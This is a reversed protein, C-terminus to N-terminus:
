REKGGETLHAAREMIRRDLEADRKATISVVAADKKAERTYAHDDDVYVEVMTGCACKM